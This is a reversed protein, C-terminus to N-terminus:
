DLLVDASACIGPARDAAPGLWRTTHADWYAWRDALGVQTLADGAFRLGYTPDTSTRDEAPDYCAPYDQSDEFFCVDHGLRALGLVYQLHHWAMGAVPGRVIHGLVIVRVSSCRAPM